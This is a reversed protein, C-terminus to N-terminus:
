VQLPTINLVRFWNPVGLELFQAGFPVGVRLIRDSVLGSIIAMFKLLLLIIFSFRCKVLRVTLRALNDGMQADIQANRFIVGLPM